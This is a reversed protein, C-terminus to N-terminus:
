FVLNLFAVQLLKNSSWIIHFYLCNLFLLREKIFEDNLIVVNMIFQVNDLM